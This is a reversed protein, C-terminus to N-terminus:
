ETKLRAIVKVEVLLEPYGLSAVGVATWAPRNDGQFRAKEAVFEPLHKPYDVHFSSIDVIDAPTGGAAFLVQKIADFVLAFQEVPDTPINGEADQGIQGSCFLLDGSRVSQSFGLAEQQEASIM